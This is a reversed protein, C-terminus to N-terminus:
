IVQWAMQSTKQTVNEPSVRAIQDLVYGIDEIKQINLIRIIRHRDKNRPDQLYRELHRLVIKGEDDFLATSPSNKIVYDQASNGSNGDGDEFEVPRGQPIKWTILNKIGKGDYFYCGQWKDM